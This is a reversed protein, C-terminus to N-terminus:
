KKKTRKEEKRRTQQEVESNHSTPTAQIYTRTINSNPRNNPLIHMEM